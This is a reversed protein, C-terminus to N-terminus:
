PACRHDMATGHWGTRHDSRAAFPQYAEHIGVLGGQTRTEDIVAEMASDDWLNATPNNPYALYTVAPNYRTIAELMAPVDLAFAETLPVGVM